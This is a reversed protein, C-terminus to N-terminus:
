TDDTWDNIDGDYRASGVANWSIDWAEEPINLYGSATVWEPHARSTEEWADDRLEEEVMVPEDMAAGDYRLLTVDPITVLLVVPEGGDVEAQEEAYYEALDPTSALYPSRLPEGAQLRSLVRTSTGHYAKM